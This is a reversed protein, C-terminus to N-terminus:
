TDDDAEARKDRKPPESFAHPWKGRRSRRPVAGLLDSALLIFGISVFVAGTLTFASPSGGGSKPTRGPTGGGITPTPTPTAASVVIEGGQAGTLIDDGNPDSLSAFDFSLASTGEALASFTVTSLLGSGSPGPPTLGGSVCGFKVSGAEVTPGLCSVPRESSELFLGNVVSVVDLAAPDYTIQWEYSGLNAVNDVRIDIAPSAGPAVAQTPPDIWVLTVPVMTATPTPGTTPTITPTPVEGPFVTIVGAHTTSPIRSAGVDFLITDQFSLTTTGEALATFSVTAL